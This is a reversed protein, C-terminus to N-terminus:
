NNKLYQENKIIRKDIWIKCNQLARAYSVTDGVVFAYHTENLSRMGMPKWVQITSRKGKGAVGKTTPQLLDYGKYTEIHTAM